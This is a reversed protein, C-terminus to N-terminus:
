KHYPHSKMITYARYIQEILILKAIRHPMTMKSLSLLTNSRTKVSESLGFAGGIIFSIAKSSSDQLTQITKAFLESTMQEGNPDLAIIYDEPKIYKLILAGEKEKQQTNSNFPELDVVDIKWPMRKIYESSIDSYQKSKDHDISIIKIKM